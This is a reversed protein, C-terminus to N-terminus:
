ATGTPLALALVAIAPFLMNCNRIFLTKPKQKEPPTLM